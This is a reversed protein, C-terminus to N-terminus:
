SVEPPGADLGEITARWLKFCHEHMPVWRPAGDLEVEVSYQTEGRMVAKDCCICLNGEGTGATVRARRDRPLVAALIRSRVTREGTM